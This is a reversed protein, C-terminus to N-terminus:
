KGNWNVAVRYFAQNNSFTIPFTLNTTTGIAYFPGALNTESFVRFYVRGVFQTPYNWKLVHGAPIVVAPKEPKVSGIGGALVYVACVWAILFTFIALKVRHFKM